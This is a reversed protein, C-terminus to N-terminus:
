GGTNEHTEEPAEPVRRHVSLREAGHQQRERDRKRNAPRQGTLRKPFVGKCAGPVM